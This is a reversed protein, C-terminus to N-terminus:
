EHSDQSSAGTVSTLGDGSVGRGRDGAADEEREREGGARGVVARMICGGHEGDDLEVVGLAAVVSAQM